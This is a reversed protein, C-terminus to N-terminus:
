TTPSVELAMGHHIGDKNLSHSIFDWLKFVNYGDVGILDGVTFLVHDIWLPASLINLQM